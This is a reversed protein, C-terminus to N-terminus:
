VGRLQAGVVRGDVPIQREGVLVQSPESFRMSSCAFCHLEVSEVGGVTCQQGLELRWARSWVTGQVTSHAHLDNSVGRSRSIRLSAWFGSMAPITRVTNVITRMPPTTSVIVDAPQPGALASPRFPM